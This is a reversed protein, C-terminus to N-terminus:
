IALRQAINGGVLNEVVKPDQIEEDLRKKILDIFGTLGPGSGLYQWMTSDALDTALAISKSFGSSVMDLILPWLYKEPEYKPRFFTDYELLYGARALEKHLVPDPRKDIHCIVLNGPKLGKHEFYDVFKEIDAGKETHMEILLGSTVSAVFAAELLHQPSKELTERVAIKIFGPFVPKARRTEELGEIIESLFYEAAQETDLQWIASQEPYYERLHFGTCAIIQVGSGKSIQLLKVGDRGAGGPQCDLQAGGGSQRYSVLEQIIKEQQDLVPANVAKVDQGSIWLHNHADTIGLKKYPVRGQVTTIQKEM